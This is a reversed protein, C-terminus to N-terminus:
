APFNARVRKVMRGIGIADGALEEGQVAAIQRLPQWISVAAVTARNNSSFGSQGVMKSFLSLVM